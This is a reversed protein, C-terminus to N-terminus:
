YRHIRIGQRSVNRFTAIVGVLFALTYIILWIFRFNLLFTAITFSPVFYDIISTILIGHILGQEGQGFVLQGYRLLGKFSAEPKEEPKELTSSKERLILYPKVLSANYLFVLVIAGLGFAFAFIEHTQNYIGFSMCALIFGLLFDGTIADWFMGEPSATKNYRAVEGDCCDLILFLHLLLSAAIWYKPNGPILLIGAAIVVLLSILTVQNASTKMKLFLKTFYISVKRFVFRETPSMKHLDTERTAQCIKRLEKISETM